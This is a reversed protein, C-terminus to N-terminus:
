CSEYCTDLKLTAIARRRAFPMQPRNYNITGLAPLGGKALNEETKRAASSELLSYGIRKGLLNRPLPTKNHVHALNRRHLANLAHM